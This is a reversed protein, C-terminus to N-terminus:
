IKWRKNFNKDFKKHNKIISRFVYIIFAFGLISTIVSGALYVVAFGKAYPLLEKIIDEM